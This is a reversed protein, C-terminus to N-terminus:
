LEEGSPLPTPFLTRTRATDLITQLVSDMEQLVRNDWFRLTALRQRELARTRTEDRQTTHQSGDAEVVRGLRHCYFDVVYPPLPHQRRFKLGSLRGGRLQFWLAQEANTGLTRLQKAVSRTRTPLPQKIRM